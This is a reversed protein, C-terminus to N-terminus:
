VEVTYWHSLKKGNKRRAQQATGLYIIVMVNHCRYDNSVPRLCYGQATHSSRQCSLLQLFALALLLSPHAVVLHPVFPEQRVVSTEYCHQHRAGYSLQEVPGGEDAVASPM